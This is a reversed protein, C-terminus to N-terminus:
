TDQGTANAGALAARYEPSLQRLLRTAETLTLVTDPAQARLPAAFFLAAWFGFCLALRRFPARVRM